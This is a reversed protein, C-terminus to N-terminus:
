KRRIEISLMEVGFHVKNESGSETIMSYDFLDPAQKHLGERGSIMELVTLLDSKRQAKRGEVTM